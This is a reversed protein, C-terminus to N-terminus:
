KTQLYKYACTYGLKSGVGCDDVGGRPKILNAYINFVYIDRGWTNPGQFGNVDMAMWGCSTTTDDCASTDIELAIATGDNAIFGATWTSGEINGTFSDNTLNGNQVKIGARLPFCVGINAGNTTDCNTVSPMQSILQNKVRISSGGTPISTWTVLFDGNNPIAAAKMAQNIVSFERKMKNILEADQSKQFLIPITIAAIIGVIALTILVEALTFAKLITDLETYQEEM